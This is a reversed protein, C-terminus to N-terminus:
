YVVKEQLGRIRLQKESGTLTNERVLLKVTVGEKNLLARAIREGLNGTAGAVLITTHQNMHDEHALTPGAGFAAYLVWMSPEVLLLGTPNGQADRQIEGKPPNPTEKTYGLAHIAARNLLAREYYHLIFVPTDPSLANIEDLTPMQREAFQFESWGGMVRVWQPSLHRISKSM